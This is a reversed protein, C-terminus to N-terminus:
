AKYYDIVWGYVFAAVAIIALILYVVWLASLHLVPSIITGALMFISVIAGVVKTSIKKNRLVAFFAVLVTLLTGFALWYMDSNTNYDADLSVMYNWIPENKGYGVAFYGLPSFHGGDYAVTPFFWLIVILVLAAGGVYTLLQSLKKKDM